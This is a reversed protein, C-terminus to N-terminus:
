PESSCSIRCANGGASQRDSAVVDDRQASERLREILLGAEELARAYSEISHILGRFRMTLGAREFTEDFLGTNLYDGEIVFPADAEKRAFKGADAIPHTVCICLRGQPTLVREAERVAGPMEDMDMLSNYAVVLDFSGDAFPLRAADATIYRGGAHSEHAAQILLPSADVSVMPHGLRVLDRTVRGEGCGVELTRRGAKPVIDRFFAPSYEWYSDHGPTRAWAIWNRAESEWFTSQPMEGHKDVCGVTGTPAAVVVYSM